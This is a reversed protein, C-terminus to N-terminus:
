GTRSDSARRRVVAPAAHLAVGVGLMALSVVLMLPRERYMEFGVLLALFFGHYLFPVVAPIRDPPRPDFDGRAVVLTSLVLLVVLVVAKRPVTTAVADWGQLGVILGAVALVIATPGRALPGLRDRLGLWAASFLTAVLFWGLFNGLSVGFWAGPPTWEWFPVRIAVADMALDIHLAFLGVFLPLRTPSLGLREGLHLGSYIIVAWGLGIVIPVDAVTLLYEEVPYTYAEFQLIVLQELLVGYVVGAGLLGVRDRDPLAHLLCLLTALLAMGANLAYVARVM